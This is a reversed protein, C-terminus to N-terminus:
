SILRIPRIPLILDLKDQQEILILEIETGFYIDVDGKYRGLADIMYQSHFCIELDEGTTSAMVTNSVCVERDEVAIRVGESNIKLMVNGIGYDFVVSTRKLADKFKNSDIKIHTREKKNILEEVNVYRGNPNKAIIKVDGFNLKIYNEDQCIACPMNEKLKSIVKIVQNPILIENEIEEIDLKRKSLRYGDLAYVSDKKIAITELVPRSNDKALAYKVELVDQISPIFTVEDTNVKLVEFADINNKVELKCDQGKISNGDFVLNSSKPFMKFLHSKFVKYGEEENGYYPADIVVQIKKNQGIIKVKKDQVLVEIESVKVLKNMKYFLDSNITAKM